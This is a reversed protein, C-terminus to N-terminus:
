SLLAVILRDIRHIGCCVKASVSALYRMLHTLQVSMLGRRYWLLMESISVDSSRPFMYMVYYLCHSVFRILM